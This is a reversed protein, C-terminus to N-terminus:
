QGSRQGKAVRRRISRSGAIMPAVLNRRMLRSEVVVGAVHLVALILMLNAAVEHVEKIWGGEDDGDDDGEADNEAGSQAEGSAPALTSWDGSELTAQQQAIKMPSAGGTMVLGTGIVVALMAWLAYAMIAGAPNHSAHGAPRGALMQALHRLAAAPNPPFASFRAEVPGILGWLLRILLLAMGIWGLTVHSVSGAKTVLGNGIVVVAIGWHSIRVLPDWLSPSTPETSSHPGTM